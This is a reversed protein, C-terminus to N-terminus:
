RGFFARHLARSQGPSLNRTGLATVVEDAVDRQERPLSPVEKSWALRARVHDHLRPSRTLEDARRHLDLVQDLLTEFQPEDITVAQSYSIAADASPACFREISPNSVGGCPPYRSNRTGPAEPQRPTRCMSVPIFVVSRM